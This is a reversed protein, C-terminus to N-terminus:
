RGRCDGHPSLVVGGTPPPPDDHKVEGPFLQHEEGLRTIRVEGCKKCRGFNLLVAAPVDGLYSDFHLRDIQHEKSDWEHECHLEPKSSAMFENDFAAVCQTCLMKREYPYECWDIERWDDPERHFTKEKRGCRDCVEEHEPKPTAPMWRDDEFAQATDCRRCHRLLLANPHQHEEWDHECQKAKAEDSKVADM